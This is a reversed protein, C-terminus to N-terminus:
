YWEPKNCKTLPSELDEEDIDFDSSEFESDYRDDDNSDIIEADRYHSRSTYGDSLLEKYKDLKDQYDDENEATFELTISRGYFVTERWNYDIKVKRKIM